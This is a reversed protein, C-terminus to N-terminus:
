SIQKNCQDTLYILDQRSLRNIDIGVKLLAAEATDECYVIYTAAKRLKQKKEEETFRMIDAGNIGNGSFTSFPKNYDFM